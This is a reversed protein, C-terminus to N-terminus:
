LHLKCEATRSSYLVSVKFPKHSCKITLNHARTQLRIRGSIERHVQERCVVHSPFTEGLIGSSCVVAISEKKYLEVVAIQDFVYKRRRDYQIWRCEYGEVEVLIHFYALATVTRRLITTRAVVDPIAGDRTLLFIPPQVLFRAKRLLFPRLGKKKKGRKKQTM